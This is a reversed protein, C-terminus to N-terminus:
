LDLVKETVVHSRCSGPSGASTAGLLAQGRRCSTGKCCPEQVIQKRGVVRGALDVVLLPGPPCLGALWGLDNPALADFPHGNPWRWGSNINIFGLLGYRLQLLQLTKLPFRTRPSKGRNGCVVAPRLVLAPPLALGTGWGELHQRLSNEERGPGLCM